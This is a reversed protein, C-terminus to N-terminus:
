WVHMQDTVHYSDLQNMEFWSNPTYQLNNPATHCINRDTCYDFM